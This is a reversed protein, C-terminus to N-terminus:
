YTGTQNHLSVIAPHGDCVQKKGVVSVIADLGLEKTPPPCEKILLTGNVIMHNTDSRLILHGRVILICTVDRCTVTQNHLSVIAPHGDCVRKKGVVSAIANLGLEKITPPREKILLTGEAVHGIQASGLLVRDHHNADRSVDHVGTLPHTYPNHAM